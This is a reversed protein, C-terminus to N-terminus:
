QETESDHSGVARVRAAELVAAADTLLSQPFTIQYAELSVLDTVPDRVLAYVVGDDLSFDQWPESFAVKALYVGDESVFHLTANGSGFDDPNQELLAALGTAADFRLPGFRCKVLWREPMVALSQEVFQPPLGRGRLRERLDSLAAEREADSVPEVPLEIRSEKVLHGDRDFIQIWPTTFRLRAAGDSWSSLDSCQIGEEEPLPDLPEIAFAVLDEREGITVWDGSTGERPDSLFEGKIMLTTGDLSFGNWPQGELHQSVLYSGDMGLYEVSGKGADIAAIRDGVLFADRLGLFEGPGGGPRGIPARAEGGATIPFIRNAPPDTLLILGSGAHISSPDVWDPDQLSWLEQLLGDSESLLPEAPNSVVEVGDRAEM